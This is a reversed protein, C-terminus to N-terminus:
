TNPWKKWTSGASASLKSAPTVALPAASGEDEVNLHRKNVIVIRRGAIKEGEPRPRLLPIRLQVPFLRHERVELILVEVTLYELSATGVPGNETVRGGIM